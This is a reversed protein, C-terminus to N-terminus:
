RRNPAQAVLPVSVIDKPSVHDRVPILLLRPHPGEVLLVFRDGKRSHSYRSALDGRLLPIESMVVRGEKTHRALSVGPVAANTESGSPPGGRSNIELAYVANKTVVPLGRLSNSRGM